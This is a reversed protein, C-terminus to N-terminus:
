PRTLSGNGNPTRWSLTVGCDPESGLRSFSALHGIAYFMQRFSLRRRPPNLSDPIAELLNPWSELARPAVLFFSQRDSLVFDERLQHGL